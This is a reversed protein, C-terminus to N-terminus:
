NVVAHMLFVFQSVVQEKQEQRKAIQKMEEERVAAEDERRQAECVEQALMMAELKQERWVAM